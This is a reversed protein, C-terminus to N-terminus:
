RLRRLEAKVEDLLVQSSEKYRRWSHLFDLLLVKWNFITNWSERSRMGAENRSFTPAPTNTIEKDDDYLTDGWGLETMVAHRKLM